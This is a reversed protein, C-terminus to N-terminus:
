FGFRWQIERGIGVDKLLYQRINWRSKVTVCEDRIIVDLVRFLQGPREKFQGLGDVIVSQFPFRLFLELGFKGLKEVFLVVPHPVIRM